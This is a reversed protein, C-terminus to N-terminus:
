LGGEWHICAPPLAPRYRCPRDATGQVGYRLAGEPGLAMRLVRRLRSLSEQFFAKDMGRRLRRATSSGDPDGMHAYERLFEIAYDPECVGDVPCHVDNGTKARRVIWSLFALPVRQVNVTQGGAIICERDLDIRLEPPALARQASGVVESFSATGHLLREDLGHRLRVFPIVALTVVAERCDLARQRRDLAHIVRQYPTPYYFQPHSEYPASVLVHSLRDQPRGYLSLAYGLYFGMTKRGGAVSVHLASHEDATLTRVIETICDAARENDAPTRIDTLATGFADAIVHICDADFRLGDLAYDRCLRHFWGPDESLLNLRAHAAGEASTVLHVESPVFPPEAAIALAYLTETVVQASLGTAALLIRRPYTAPLRPDPIPDTRGPLSSSVTGDTADRASKPVLVPDRGKRQTTRVSAAQPEM